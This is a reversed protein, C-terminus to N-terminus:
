PSDGGLAFAVKRVASPENRLRCEDIMIASNLDFSTDEAAIPPPGRFALHIGSAKNARARVEYEKREKEKKREEKKKDKKEKKRKKRERKKRGSKRCPWTRARAHLVAPRRDLHDIISFFL